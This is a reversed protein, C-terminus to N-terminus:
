SNCDRGQLRRFFATMSSGTEVARKGTQLATTNLHCLMLRAASGYPLGVPVYQGQPDKARGAELSLSVRGQKREWVRINPGPDRYPLVTQCFVSHQFLIEDPLAAAIKVSSEIMRRKVASLPRRGEARVKERAQQERAKLKELSEEFTSM